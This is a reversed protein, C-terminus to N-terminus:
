NVRNGDADVMLVQGWRGGTPDVDRGQWLVWLVDRIHPPKVGPVDIYGDTFAVVVGNYGEADLKQFAPRFDSGGGGLVDVDEVAEVEDQDSHIQTDCCIVRLTMNMDECIGIIEGFIEAERGHMSGSTDWLVVIDDVGHRQTAPLIEGIAESRRAPRRYTFDAMNGNEGVWRSLEDSWSVKPDTIEDILKQLAGPLSGKNQQQHVQAAECIAVKWYNDLERQQAESRGQQPRGNEPINGLGDDGQGGDSSDGDDDGDSKDDGGLDDRLDDTGWGNDPLSVTGGGGDSSCAGDLLTDYIEEASMGDYKRDLCGGAPLKVESVSRTMEDIIGNIAFDHSINWLSVKNGHQDQVIACRSGQRAWALYAPHMVEHCLVGAFEADSLSDAFDINIYLKRDRTVGMTKIRHHPQAVQPDLKLLLHGFFPVWVTLATRVMSLREKLKDVRAPDLDAIQELDSKPEPPAFSSM